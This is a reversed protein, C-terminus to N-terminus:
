KKIAQSAKQIYTQQKRRSYTYKIPIVYKKQTTNIKKQFKDLNYTFKLNKVMNMLDKEFSANRQM